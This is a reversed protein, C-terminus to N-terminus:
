KAVASTGLFQQRFSEIEQNVQATHISRYRRLSDASEQPRGLKKYIQALRYWGSASQPNQEVVRELDTLAARNDGTSELVRSRLELCAVCHPLGVLAKNLESLIRARDPSNMNWLASAVLYYLYPHPRPTELGLQAERSCASFDNSMCQAFAAILLSLSSTASDSQLDRCLALAATKRGALANGLALELKIEGSDPHYVSARQLVDIAPVYASSRLYFLALDLAYNEERPRARYAAALDDRAKQLDGAAQYIKGQLYEVAAQDAPGASKASALAASAQELQGLNLRAFALNYHAEFSSPYLEVCKEFVDASDQLFEHEGLFAGASLLVEVPPKSSLLETELAKIGSADHAAVAQRLALM